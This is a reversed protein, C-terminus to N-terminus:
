LSCMGSEHVAFGRNLAYLEAECVVFGRNM